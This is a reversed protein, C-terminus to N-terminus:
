KRCKETVLMNDTSCNNKKTKKKTHEFNKLFSVNARLMNKLIIKHLLKM